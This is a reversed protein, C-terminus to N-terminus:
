DDVDAFRSDIAIPPQAAVPVLGAMLLLTSIFAGALSRIMIDM